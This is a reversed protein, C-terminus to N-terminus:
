RVNKIGLVYNEAANEAYIESKETYVEDKIWLKDEFFRCGFGYEAQYVKAEKNGQQFTSLEKIFNIM